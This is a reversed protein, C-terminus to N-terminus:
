PHRVHAYFNQQIELATRKIAAQIASRSDMYAPGMFPQAPTGRTAIAKRLIYDGGKLPFGHRSAWGALAGPPPWHPRSGHEVAGAYPVPDEVIVWLPIAHSDIKHKISAKLWHTDIPAHRKANKEVTEAITQLMRRLPKGLLRHADLALTLEQLGEIRIEIDPM